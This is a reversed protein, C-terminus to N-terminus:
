IHDVQTSQVRPVLPGISQWFESACGKTSGSCRYSSSHQGLCSRRTKSHWLAEMTLKEKLWLAPLIFHSLLTVHSLSSEVEWFQTTSTTCPSFALRAEYCLDTPPSPAIGLQEFDFSSQSVRWAGEEDRAEIALANSQLHSRLFGRGRVPVPLSGSARQEPQM